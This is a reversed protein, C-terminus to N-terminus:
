EFGKAGAPRLRVRAGPVLLEELRGPDPVHAEERRGDLEVMALFRNPRELFAAEGYEGIDM